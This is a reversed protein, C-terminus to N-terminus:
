DEFNEPPEPIISMWHLMKDVDTQEIPTSDGIYDHTGDVYDPDDVDINYKENYYTPSNKYYILFRQFLTKDSAQKFTECNDPCHDCGYRVNEHKLCRTFGYFGCFYGCVEGHACLNGKEITKEWIEFVETVKM